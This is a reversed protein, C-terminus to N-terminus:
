RETHSPCFTRHRRLVCKREPARHSITHNCYKGTGDEPRTWRPASKKIGTLLRCATLIGVAALSGAPGVCDAALAVALLGFFTIGDHM